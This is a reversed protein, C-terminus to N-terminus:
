SGVESDACSGGNGAILLKGDAEYCDQLIEYAGLIQKRITDLVPYRIVLDDLYKMENKM